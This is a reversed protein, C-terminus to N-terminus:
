GAMLARREPGNPPPPSSCCGCFFGGQKEDEEEQYPPPPPTRKKEICLCYLITDSVQDLLLMFPLSVLASIVGAVAYLTVRDNVFEPSQPDNLVPWYTCLLHMVVVGGAAIGSVGAVTFLITTTNLTAVEGAHELLVTVAHYAAKCFANSNMATDMYANKTMYKLFRNFCDLCCTCCCGCCAMVSNGSDAAQKTLLFMVDRAGRCTAVLSSGLAFTGLHYTIGACLGQLTPFCPAEFGSDLGGRTAVYWLQVAYAIVFNSMADVMELIWYSMFLYIGIFIYEENEFTVEYQGFADASHQMHACSILYWLGVGLLVFVIIKIALDIFPQVLLSPIDTICDAAEKLSELARNVVGCSCCAFCIFILALGCAAAGVALDQQPNGTTIDPVEDVQRVGAETLQRRLQSGYLLVGGIAGLVLVVSFISGWFICFACTELFFLFLFGLLIAAGAVIAIAKWSKFVESVKLIQRLQPSSIAEELELADSPDKPLCLIGALPRTEYGETVGAPCLDPPVEPGTPCSAVCLTNQPSLGSNGKCFYLLPKEKVGESRGCIDRQSNPLHMFRHPDGNLVGWSVIFSFGALCVLFLLCCPVDTCRRQVSSPHCGTDYEEHEDVFKHMVMAAQRGRWAAGEWGICAGGRSGHARVQAM